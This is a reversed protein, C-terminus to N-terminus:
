PAHSTDQAESAVLPALKFLTYTDDIKDLSYGLLSFWRVAMPHRSGSYTHFQTQAPYRRQVTRLHRRTYLVGRTGLEFYRKAALFWTVRVGPEQACHGFVAIPADDELIVDAPGSAFFVKAAKLAKWPTLASRGLEDASIDSLDDLVRRVDGINAPATKLVSM